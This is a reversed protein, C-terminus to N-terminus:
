TSVLIYLEYLGNANYESFLLVNKIYKYALKRQLHLSNKNAAINIANKKEILKM